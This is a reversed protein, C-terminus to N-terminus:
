GFTLRAHVAASVPRGQWRAIALAAAGATGDAAPRAETGFMKRVGARVADRVPGPSLLVSGALVVAEPGVAAATSAKAVAALAALLRRAADDVIRKAALDGAEAATAVLPALRGLGAPPMAYAAGLLAQAHEAPDTPAPEPGLLRATIPGALATPGARGDLGALVARLGRLGIWVAGGEDGLLWGYGDCRHVIVGDRLAAAAAGTGAVLLLGSGAPSGAAFAVELDTVTIVQGPLGVARWAETAAARATSRGASGAGAAGVVGGVVRQTDVDSLAARLAAALADAPRGGSSRQSAGGASGRALVAGNVAAVLCRTVTGGADVGVVLGGSVGAWPLPNVALM